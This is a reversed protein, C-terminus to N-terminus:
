AGKRPQEHWDVGDEHPETDLDGFAQRLWGREWSGPRRVGDIASAVLHDIAIGALEAPTGKAGICRALMALSALHEVHLTVVVELPGPMSGSSSQKKSAM